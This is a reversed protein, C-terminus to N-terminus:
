ANECMRTGLANRLYRRIAPISVGVLNSSNQKIKRWSKATGLLSSDNLPKVVLTGGAAANIM